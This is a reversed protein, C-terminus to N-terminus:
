MVDGTRIMSTADTVGWICPLGYERAIIAGHILMGGRREIIGAALPAFFTMTPDISDIVLVEGRKFAALDSHDHIVRATGKAIGRSAPQGLLQRPRTRGQKPVTKEAITPGSVREPVTGGLLISCIDDEGTLDLTIGSRGAIRSRAQNIARQREQNIRGLHINDDDRLRYSARALNLLTAPDFPTKKGCDSSFRHEREKKVRSGDKTGLGDLGSYELIISCLLEDIVSNEEGGLSDMAFTSRLKEVNLQFAKSKINPLNGARLYGLADADGRVIEACDYFFDNRTTSIMEQGTLLTVFEFPDEPQMVDNYVQGFLRVGHALPIFDSWYVGTWKDTLSSRKRIEKVLEENNLTSLDVSALVKYDRDMDPLLSHEVRDWLQLLNHYSRTLSLYWSRKDNADTEEMSTIPRSQLLHIHENVVTWEIDQPVTMCGEIEKGLAVVKHVMEDQLPPAEVTESKRSVLVDEIVDGGDDDTQNVAPQHRVVIVNTHRDITWRTPEITGDVLGQNLGHVAEVLMTSPKLPNQTFLVGSASGEIFPQIVVAMRSGTTQLGLEQRYLLARDTWLSSWVMKIKEFVQEPGSVNIYSDHLGAFSHTSSDEQLSSSRIVLPNAGFHSEIAGTIQKRIEEPIDNRTFFNKIRLSSDWLEEWRMDGIEKRHLEMHIKERIQSTDVFLDYAEASICLPKPVAFGQEYLQFLVYGKGGIDGRTLDPLQEPSYIWKM